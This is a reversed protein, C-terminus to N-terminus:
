FGRRRVEDRLEQSRIRESSRSRHRATRLAARITAKATAIRAQAEPDAQQAALQARVATAAAADEAKQVARADAERRRRPVPPEVGTLARKVQVVFLGVPNRQSNPAPQYRGAEINDADLHAIVDRATWGDADLGLVALADCLTGIHGRALWPLRRALDAALRQVALPRVVPQQHTRPKNRPKRGERARAQAHKPLGSRPSVLAPVEGRRPLHVDQHLRPVTLARESAMRRQDGGHALRAAAREESTLYRGATVTAAYGLAEVLLRARQVTKSSCGLLTAVTAHATTVHRGTRSDAARADEVAVDLATEVSVQLRRRHVEGAPSLLVAQLRELWASAGPWVPAAVPASPRWSGGRRVPVPPTIAPRSTGGRPRYYRRTRCASGPPLPTALRTDPAVTPLM